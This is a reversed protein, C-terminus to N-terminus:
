SCSAVDELTRIAAIIKAAAETPIGKGPEEYFTHVVEDKPSIVLVGGKILGDGKMNGEIGKMKQRDGMEKMERRARLPNLLLSGLTGFTFIPKKGLAEFFVLDVDQYLPGCFYRQAFEDVGLIKEGPAECEKVVAFLPLETGAKELATCLDVAEERCL